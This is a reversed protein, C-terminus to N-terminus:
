HFLFEGVLAPCLCLHVPQLPEPISLCRAKTGSWRPANYTTVSRWHVGPAVENALECALRCAGCGTCRNLDVTFGAQAM